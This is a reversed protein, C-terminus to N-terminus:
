NKGGGVLELRDIMPNRPKGSDEQPSASTRGESFRAVLQAKLAAHQEALTTASM